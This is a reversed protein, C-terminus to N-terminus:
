PKKITNNNVIRPGGFHVRVSVSKASVVSTRDQPEFRLTIDFDAVGCLIAALRYSLDLGVFGVEDEEVDLHRPEVTKRHNLAQHLDLRREDDEDLDSSCVDSSWDSIRM